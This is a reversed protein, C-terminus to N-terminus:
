PLSFQPEDTCRFVVSTLTAPSRQVSTNPKATAPTATVRAKKRSWYAARVCDVVMRSADKERLM